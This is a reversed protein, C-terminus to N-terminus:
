NDEMEDDSVPNEVDSGTSADESSLSGQAKYKIVKVPTEVKDDGMEKRKRGITSDTLQMSKAAELFVSDDATEMEEDNEMHGKDDIFFLDSDSETNKKKYTSADTSAKSKDIVVSNALKETDNEFFRLGQDEFGILWQLTLQPTSLDPVKSRDIGTQNIVWKSIQNPLSSTAYAKLYSIAKAHDGKERAAQIANHTFILRRISLYRVFDYSQEMKEGSNLFSYDILMVDCLIDRAMKENKPDLDTIVPFNPKLLLMLLIEFFVHNQFATILGVCWTRLEEKLSGDERIKLFLKLLFAEAMVVGALYGVSKRKRFEEMIEESVLPFFANLGKGMTWVKALDNFCSLLECGYDDSDFGSGSCISVYSVLGEVLSKIERSLKKKEKGNVNEAELICAYGVSIIPGLLAISKLASCDSGCASLFQFLSKAALVRDRVSKSPDLSDHYNIVAYFWIIEVPPNSSSQLVRTFISRFSSFDLTKSEILTLFRDISEKLMSEYNSSMVPNLNAPHESIPSEILITDM